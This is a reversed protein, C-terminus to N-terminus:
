DKKEERFAYVELKRIKKAPLRPIMKLNFFNGLWLTQESEVSFGDICVSSFYSNIQYM